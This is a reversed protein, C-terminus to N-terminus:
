YNLLLRDGPGTTTNRHRSPFSGVKTVKEQSPISAGSVSLGGWIGTGQLLRSGPPPLASSQRTSRLMVQGAIGEGDSDLKEEHLTATSSSRVM